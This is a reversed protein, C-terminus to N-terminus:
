QNTRAEGLSNSRLITEKVARFPTPLIKKVDSWQIEIDNGAALDFFSLKGEPVGCTAHNFKLSEIQHRISAKGDSHKWWEWLLGIDIRGRLAALGTDQKCVRELSRTSRPEIWGRKVGSDLEVRDVFIDLAAEINLRRGDEVLGDLKPLHDAAALLRARVIDRPAGTLARLMAVAFSVLPAAASTGSDCIVRGEADFSAMLAGPAAIHVKSPSRASDPWFPSSENPQLAAVVIIKDDFGQLSAPRNDQASEDLDERLNGAAAVLLTTGNTKFREFPTDRGTKLSMNIVDAGIKDAYELSGSIDSYSNEVHLSPDDSRRTVRFFSLGVFNSVAPFASIFQPGGAALGGVYSGHDPAYIQTSTSKRPSPHVVDFHDYAPNLCRNEDHINAGAGTGYVDRWYGNNNGDACIPSGEQQRQAFRPSIMEAPEAFLVHNFMETQALAKGLGTDVILVRSRRPPPIRLRRRMNENFKMVNVLKEADFPWNAANASCDAGAAQFQIFSFGERPPQADISLTPSREVRELRSAIEADTLLRNLRFQRESSNSIQLDREILSVAAKSGRPAIVLEGDSVRLSNEELKETSVAVSANAPIGAAKIISSDQGIVAYTERQDITIPPGPMAGIAPVKRYANFTPATMGTEHARHGSGAQARALVETGGISCTLQACLDQVPASHKSVTNILRSVSDPEILDALAERADPTLPREVRLTVVGKPPPAPAAGQSAAPPPLALLLWSGMLMPVALSAPGSRKRNSKMAIWAAVSMQKEGFTSAKEILAPSSM